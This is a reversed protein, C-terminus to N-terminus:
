VYTNQVFMCREAANIVQVRHLNELLKIVPVNEADVELCNNFM